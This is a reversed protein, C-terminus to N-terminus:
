DREDPESAVPEPGPSADPPEPADPAVIVSESSPMAEIVVVDGDDFVASGLIPVGPWVEDASVEVFLLAGDREVLSGVRLTEGDHSRFCVTAGVEGRAAAEALLDQSALTAEELLGEFDLPDELVVRDADDAPVLTLRKHSSALASGFLQSEDWSSGGHSSLVVGESLVLSMRSTLGDCFAVFSEVSGPGSASIVIQGQGPIGGSAPSMRAGTAFHSLVMVVGGVVLVGFVVLTGIVIAGPGRREGGGPEGRGGLVRSVVLVVVGVVLLLALLGVLGFAM